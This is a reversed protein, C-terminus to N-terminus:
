VDPNGWLTDKNWVSLYHGPLGFSSVRGIMQVRAKKVARLMSKNRCHVGFYLRYVGERKLEVNVASNMRAWLGQGRFSRFIQVALVVLDSCAVPMYYYGGFGGHLTWQVGVVERGLKAIWLRAGYGFFHELFPRARGPGMLSALQELDTIPIADTSSYSRVQLPDDISVPFEEKNLDMVYFYTSRIVWRDIIKQFAIILLGILGHKRRYWQLQEVVLNFRSTFTDM